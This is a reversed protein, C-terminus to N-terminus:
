QHNHVCHDVWGNAWFVGNDAHYAQIKVGHNSCLRKFAIKGQLTEDVSATKQLHLFFYQSFHDIYITAYMYWQKTLNGSLQAILGPTPSVLQDVFVQKGPASTM